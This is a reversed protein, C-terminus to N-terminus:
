FYSCGVMNVFVFWLYIQDISLQCLGKVEEWRYDFRFILFMQLVFFKILPISLFVLGLEIYKFDYDWGGLFGVIAFFRHFIM